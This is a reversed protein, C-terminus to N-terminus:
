EWVGGSVISNSTLLVGSDMPADIIVDQYERVDGTHPDRYQEATEFNTRAPTIFFSGKEDNSVGISKTAIISKKELLQTGDNNFKGVILDNEIVTDSVTVDITPKFTGDGKSPAFLNAFEESVILFAALNNVNFLNNSNSKLLRTRLANQIQRIPSKQFTNVKNGTTLTKSEGFMTIFTDDDAGGFLELIQEETVLTGSETPLLVYINSELQHNNRTLRALKNSLLSGDDKVNDNDYNQTNNLDWDGFWYEFSNTIPTTLQSHLEIINKISDHSNDNSAPDNIHEEISTSEAYGEVDSKLIRAEEFQIGALKGILTSTKDPLAINVKKESVDEKWQTGDTETHQSGDQAFINIFSDDSFLSGTGDDRMVHVKFSCVSKEIIGSSIDSVLHPAILVNGAVKLNRQEAGEKGLEVNSHFRSVNTTHTDKIHDVGDIKIEDEIFGNEITGTTTAYRPYFGVLPNEYEIQDILGRGTIAVTNNGKNELGIKNQAILKPTGVLTLTSPTVPHTVFFGDRDQVDIRYQMASLRESNDIKAWFGTSQSSGPSTNDQAASDCWVIWDGKNLELNGTSAPYQLNLINDQLKIVYYDGHSPMAEGTPKFTDGDEYYAYGPLPNLNEPLTTTMGDITIFETPQLDRKLPNWLGKFQLAGLVTDHLQSLPVKGQEDLQAKKSMLFDLMAHVNSSKNIFENKHAESFTSFLDKIFLSKQAQNTDDYYDIEVANTYGSPVLRWYGTTPDTNIPQHWLVFDGKDVVFTDTQGQFELSDKTCLYLGGIIPKVPIEAHSNITGIYQTKEFNLELLADQVNTAKFGNWPEGDEHGNQTFYVDDAYGGSNNIRQYIIKSHDKIKGTADLNDDGISVILLADDKRFDDANKFIGSKADNAFIYMDGVMAHNFIEHEISSESTLFGRLVISFYTRGSAIPIPNENKKDSLSPRGVYLTGEDWKKYKPSANASDSTRAVWFLEGPTLKNTSQKGPLSGRAIQIKSAM